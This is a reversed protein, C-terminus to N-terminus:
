TPCNPKSVPQSYNQTRNNMTVLTNELVYNRPIGVCMTCHEDWDNKSAIFSGDRNRSAVGFVPWKIGQYSVYVITGPLCM